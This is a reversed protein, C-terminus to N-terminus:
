LDFILPLFIFPIGREIFLHSAILELELAEIYDVFRSDIVEKALEIATSNAKTRTEIDLSYLRDWYVKWKDWYVKWQKVSLSERYFWFNLVEKYNPGLYKEPHDLVDQKNINHFYNLNSAFIHLARITYYTLTHFTKLCYWRVNKKFNTLYGLPVTLFGLCM